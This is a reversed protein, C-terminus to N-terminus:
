KRNRFIFNFVLCAATFVLGAAALTVCIVTVSLHVSVVVEDPVGDYPRGDQPSLLNNLTLINNYHCEYSYQANFVTM